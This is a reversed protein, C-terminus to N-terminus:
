FNTKIDYGIKKYYKATKKASALSQFYETQERGDELTITVTYDKKM